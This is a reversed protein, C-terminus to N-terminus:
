TRELLHSLWEDYKAVAERMEDLYQHRDYIREVETRSSIHNVIREAIHPPVKLRALNSRYSRRLDHLTWGHVGSAKDLAVKSKSFGNFSSSGGSGRAPFLLSGISTPSAAQTIIHLATAPLPISHERGNKTVSQPITLIDDRIWSSQLAAIEGRRQGTLMLLKVITAYNAPLSPSVVECSDNRVIHEGSGDAGGQECARWIKCLEADSLVRSRATRKHPMKLGNCPSHKLFRPVCWNMMTRIDKFAHNAESPAEIADIARGIDNHTIEDLRKTWIFHRTLTRTLEQHSRPRLRKQQAALFAIRAEPFPLSATKQTRSGKLRHAEIRADALSIAGFVGIPTRLREQGNQFFFSKRTKGVRLGLGKLATDYYVGKKLTRITTDNFHITSV